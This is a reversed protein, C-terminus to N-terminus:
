WPKNRLGTWHAHSSDLIAPLEVLLRIYLQYVSVVQIVVYPNTSFQRTPDGKGKCSTNFQINCFPIELYETTITYVLGKQQCDFITFYFM